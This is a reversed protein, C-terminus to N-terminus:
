RGSVCHSINLSHTKAAKNKRSHYLKELEFKIATCIKDFILEAQGPTFRAMESSESSIWYDSNLKINEFGLGQEPKMDWIRADLSKCKEVAEELTVPTNKDPTAYELVEGQTTAYWKDDQAEASITGAYNLNKLAEIVEQLKPQQDGRKELYKQNKVEGTVITTTAMIVTMAQIGVVSM